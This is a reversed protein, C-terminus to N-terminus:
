ARSLRIDPGILDSLKEVDYLLMAIRELGLGWAISTKGAYGLPELMEPRFLGSNGVELYRDSPAHYAFVELSPETYPNYTPKFKLQKFGLREYFYTLYGMLTRVTLLEGIV